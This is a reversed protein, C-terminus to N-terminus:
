LKHSLEGEINRCQNLAAMLLDKIKPHASDEIFSYEIEGSPSM